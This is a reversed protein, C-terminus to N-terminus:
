SFDTSKYPHGARDYTVWTGAQKGARFSGARLKTGDKRFWEWSGTLVDGKMRGRAKLRGNGFFEKFQGSSRPYSANILQVRGEVIARVTGAPMPRDREFHITGKTCTYGALELGLEEIVESGPFLRNHETFGLISLVLDGDIRFTPMGWSRELSAGPLLRAVRDAVSELAARQAPPFSGWAQELVESKM